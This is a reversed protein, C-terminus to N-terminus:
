LSTVEEKSKSNSQKDRMRRSPSSFFDPDQELISRLAVEVQRSTFSIPEEIGLIRSKSNKIFKHFHVWVRLLQSM